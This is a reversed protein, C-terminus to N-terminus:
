RSLDPDPLLHGLLSYGGCTKPLKRCFTDCTICHGPDRIVGPLISWYFITKLIKITMDNVYMSMNAEIYISLYVLILFIHNLISIPKKYSQYLGITQVLFKVLGHFKLQTWPNFWTKYLKNVHCTIKIHFTNFENLLYQYYM